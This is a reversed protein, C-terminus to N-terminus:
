KIVEYDDMNILAWPSQARNLLYGDRVTVFDREVVQPNRWWREPLPIQTDTAEGIVRGGMNIEVAAAVPEGFRAMAVPRLFVTSRHDGRAIDGYRVTTRFVSYLNAEGRKTMSMVHYQFTLEDIWEPATEYEVAVVGWERPPTVGSSVDSRYTPTRVLGRKWPGTIKGVRIIDRPAPQEAAAAPARAQALASSAGAAFLFLVLLAQTPKGTLHM